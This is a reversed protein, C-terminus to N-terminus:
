TSMLALELCNGDCLIEKSLNNPIRQTQTSKMNLKQGMCTVGIYVTLEHM